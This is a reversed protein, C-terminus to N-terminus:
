PATGIELQWTRLTGVDQGAGDVVKLSWEGTLAAGEFGAVDFSAQVNDTAGGEEAFFTKTTAGHGLTLTLDGRYTHTIDVSVKVTGVTALDTVAITSTIGTPNNDPIALNPSAAYTRVMPVAACAPHSACGSDACNAQGDRDEDRMGADDCVEAAQQDLRPLEAVVANGYESVYRMSLWGYGPGFDNGTGFSATGWSNKFLWFGKEMRPNGSGDLVPQGAEDRMPVELDDDWGIILIAHGARKALSKEKDVNNPYTVVGQNWLASDVPLESRRHNWSQYFFTMGVVVGTKKTTLHAKISNTNLYRKSPLKFRPAALAAAPPEGNTYCQTPKTEGTCAPDNGTSWPASEYPWDSEAITGFDVVAELNSPGSSGETFAFDGVERKVSWQLFQESFDPDAMGARIYLNEVQATTAFISCV